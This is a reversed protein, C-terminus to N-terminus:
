SAARAIQDGTTNDVAGTKGAITLSGGASLLITLALAALGVALRTARRPPAARVPLEDM